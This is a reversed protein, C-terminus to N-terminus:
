SVSLIRPPFLKSLVWLFYYYYSSPGIMLIPTESYLFPTTPKWTTQPLQFWLSPQSLIISLVLLGSKSTFKWMHWDYGSASHTTNVADIETGPPPRKNEMSKWHSGICRRWMKGGLWSKGRHLYWLVRGKGAWPPDLFFFACGSLSTM